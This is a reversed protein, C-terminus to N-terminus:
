GGASVEALLLYIGQDPRTGAPLDAQFASGGAEYVFRVAKGDLVARASQDAALQVTVALAPGDTGAVVAFTVRQLERAVRDLAAAHAEILPWVPRLHKARDPGITWEVPLPRYTADGAALGYWTFRLGGLCHANPAPHTAVGDTGDGDATGIGFVGDGGRLRPVFERDGRLDGQSPHRLTGPHTHVVGLLTLRRDDQRVIRSGVAQADANFRVHEAGADRDAGAPLTALVTAADEGRHGLLVWGTEEAGRDTARHSAYEDFLVRGVDDTLVLKSLRRYAVSGAPPPALEDKARDTWQRAARAASRFVDQWAIVKGTPTEDDAAPDHRPPRTASFHTTRFLAL